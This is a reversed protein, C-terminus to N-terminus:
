SHKNNGDKLRRVYSSSILLKVPKHSLYLVNPYKRLAKQIKIIQNKQQKSLKTM